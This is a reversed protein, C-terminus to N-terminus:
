CCYKLPVRMGGKLKAIAARFLTPEVRLVGCLERLAKEDSALDRLVGGSIAAAYFKDAFPALNPDGQLWARVDDATM